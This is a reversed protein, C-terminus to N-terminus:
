QVLYLLYGWPAANQYLRWKNRVVAIIKARTYLSVFEM